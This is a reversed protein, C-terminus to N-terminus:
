YLGNEKYLDMIIYIANEREMQDKKISILVVKNIRSHVRHPVFIETWHAFAKNISEGPEEVRVEAFQTHM